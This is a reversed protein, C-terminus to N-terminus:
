GLRSQHRGLECSNLTPRLQRHCRTREDARWRDFHFGRKVPGDGDDTM